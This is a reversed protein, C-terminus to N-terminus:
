AGHFDNESCGILVFEGFDLGHQGIGLPLDDAQLWHALLQPGSRRQLALRVSPM